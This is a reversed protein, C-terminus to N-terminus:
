GAKRADPSEAEVAWDEIPIGTVDRIKIAIALSVPRGTLWMSVSTQHAHIQKALWNQSRCEARLWEKLANVGRTTTHTMHTM